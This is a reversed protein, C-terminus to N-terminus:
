KKRDVTIKQQFKLQYTTNSFVNYEGTQLYYGSPFIIGQDDPLLVPASSPKQQDDNGGRATGPSTSTELKKPLEIQTDHNSNTNKTNLM